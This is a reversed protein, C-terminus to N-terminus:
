RRGSHSGVPSVPAAEVDMNILFTHDFTTDDNYGIFKLYWRPGDLNLNPFIELQDGDGRVWMPSSGPTPVIPMSLTEIRLRALGQHGNPINIELRRLIPNTVELQTTVPSVQPTNAPVTFEFVYYAM